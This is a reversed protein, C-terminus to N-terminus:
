MSEKRKERLSNEILKRRCNRTRLITPALTKAPNTTKM